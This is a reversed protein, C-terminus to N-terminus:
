MLLSKWIMQFDLGVVAVSLIYVFNQIKLCMIEGLGTAVYLRDEEITISARTGKYSLNEDGLIYREKDRGKKMALIHGNVVDDIYVYNGINLGTTKNPLTIICKSVSLTNQSM